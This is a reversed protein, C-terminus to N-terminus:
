ANPRCRWSGGRRQPNRSGAGPGAPVDAEPLRVARGFRRTTVGIRMLKMAWRGLWNEAV